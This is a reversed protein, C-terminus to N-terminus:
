KGTIKGDTKGNAKEKMRDAIGDLISFDPAKQETQMMDSTLDKYAAALDRLKYSKVMEKRVRKGGKLDSETVSNHTESGIMDPLSDIERELRRLLKSRIQAAVTANDATQEATKRVANQEFKTMNSKRDKGWKERYARSRLTSWPVRYKESLKRLSVEGTIYETKIRNWNPSKNGIHVM